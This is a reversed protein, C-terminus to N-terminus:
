FPIKENSPHDPDHLHALPGGKIACSAIVDCPFCKDPFGNAPFRGAQIEEWVEAFVEGVAEPTHESLEYPKGLTGKRNLFAAGLRPAVEYKVQVLAGYVAFQEPGSPARKGTKLDVIILQDFVPDHFIRDVYGKIEPECGPLVGSVDLEVAPQGGPTEWIAYPSRKRWDLYSQVFALGQTRWVEIPESPSRNWNWENADAAYLKQLQAEFCDAWASPVEKDSVEGRDWLETTEHVASGGASWLAPRRPADSLYKLQWSKACRTLTERSSHSLHTIQELPLGSM